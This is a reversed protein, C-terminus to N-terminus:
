RGLLRFSASILNPALAHASVQASTARPRPTVSIFQVILQEVVFYKVLQSFGLRHEM